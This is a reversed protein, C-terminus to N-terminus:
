VSAIRGVGAAFAAGAVFALLASGLALKGVLLLHGDIPSPPNIFGPSADTVRIWASLVSLGAITAGVVVVATVAVRPAPTPSRRLLLLGGLIAVWGGGFSLFLGWGPRLDPLAPGVLGLSRAVTDGIRYLDFTILGTTLVGAILLVRAAAVRPPRWWTTVLSVLVVLGGCAIVVVAEAISTGKFYDTRHLDLPPAFGEIATPLTWMAWPLLTGGIMAAGGVAGLVTASDARRDM